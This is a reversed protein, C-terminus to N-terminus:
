SLFHGGDLSVAAVDPILRRVEKRRREPAWDHEGYVLLTPVRIRPYEAKAHSWGREHSLLSLFAQYHGPRSGVDYLERKLAAPLAEASVVGGTMIRDSVFRSRLRMLTSGLLPVSSPGLIVRATLSSCRIGGDPPYDYPNIAVVRAIRPHQRAALVLAITGGISIGALTAGEIQLTDLFSATWRY